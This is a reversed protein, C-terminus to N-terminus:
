NNITVRVQCPEPYNGTQDVVILRLRYAGDPFATTDWVDLLGGAVPSYRLDTILAWQGPSDAVEYEVKYYQFDEVNATGLVQVAGSVGADQVPATLRALPNPCLPPPPVPTPVATAPEATPLTVVPLPTPRVRTPTLTPTVTPRARTPTVTPFVLASPTEEQVDAEVFTVQPAIAATLFLVVGMAGAIALGITLVRFERSTAAEKELTYISRERERRALVAARLCLLIGLVGLIHFWNAYDVIAKLFVKM